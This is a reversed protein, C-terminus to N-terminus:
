GACAPPLGFGQHCASLPCPNPSFSLGSLAKPSDKSPSGRGQTLPFSRAGLHLLLQTDTMVGEWPPELGRPVRVDGEAQSGGVM